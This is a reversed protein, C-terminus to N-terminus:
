TKGHQIYYQNYSNIAVKHQELLLQLAFIIAESSIQLREEIERSTLPAEKLVHEILATTEKPNNEKSKMCFSCMGCNEAVKEEFYALLLKNKCQSTDSIYHLVSQFQDQKLQNQHTLFKAIRNITLDDERVENFTLTSDNSKAHLLICNSAALQHIVKEVMADSCSTKKAILTPNVATEVDFIGSYTRLISTIIPEDQPHLSCYRLVEKSSIIFQLSMKESSENQFTLVGQRDLFQLSAFTKLTPFQYQVCFHNLNFAYTENFGEGYAIQFYNNLKVYVDRVFKKDPLTALFQNKSILSGTTIPKNLVANCSEKKIMYPMPVNKRM